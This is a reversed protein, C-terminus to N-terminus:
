PSEIGERNISIETRVTQIASSARFLSALLLFTLATAQSPLREARGMTVKSKLVGLFAAVSAETVLRGSHSELERSDILDSLDTMLRQHCCLGQPAIVALDAFCLKSFDSDQAIQACLALVARYISRVGTPDAAAARKARAVARDAQSELAASLCADVSSFHTYFRRRPVGAATSIKEITLKELRDSTVLKIAASIFLAQETALTADGEGMEPRSLSIPGALDAERGLPDRSPDLEELQSIELDCYSTAWCALGDSLDALQEGEDAILRARVVGFIGTLIGEVLLPPVQTTPIADLSEEVHLEITRVGRRAQKVAPPGAAYVDILMLRAAQPDRHWERLLTATARRLCESQDDCSALSNALSGLVQRLILEHTCLLCEEKGSYHQYFTRTSVAARGALERVTVAGYGREAIAEVM